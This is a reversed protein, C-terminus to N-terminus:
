LRKSVDSNGECDAEADPRGNAGVKCRARNGERTCPSWFEVDVGCRGNQSQNQEDCFSDEKDDRQGLCSALGNGRRFCLGLKITCGRVAIASRRISVRVSVSVAVRIPVGVAISFNCGVARRSRHAGGLGAEAYEFCQALEM